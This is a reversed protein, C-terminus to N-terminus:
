GVWLFPSVTALHGAHTLPHRIRQLNQLMVQLLAVRSNAPASHYEMNCIHICEPSMKFLFSELRITGLITGPSFTIEVHMIRVTM